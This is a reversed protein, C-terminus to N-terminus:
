GIGLARLVSPLAPAFQYLYAGIVLVAWIWLLIALMGTNM